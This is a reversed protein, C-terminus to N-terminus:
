PLYAYLMYTRHRVLQGVGGTRVARLLSTRTARVYLVTRLSQSTRTLVSASLGTMWEEDAAAAEATMRAEEVLRTEDM